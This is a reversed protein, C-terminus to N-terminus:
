APNLNFLRQLHGECFRKDNFYKKYADVYAGYSNFDSRSPPLYILCLPKKQGANAKKPTAQDYTTGEIM